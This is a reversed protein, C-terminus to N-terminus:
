RYVLLDRTAGLREYVPLEEEHRIRLAEDLEGRTQLVDALSEQGDAIESLSKLTEAHLILVLGAFAEGKKGADQKLLERVSTAYKEVLVQALDDILGGAQARIRDQDIVSDTSALAVKVALPRLLSKWFEVIRAVLRRREAADLRSRGRPQTGAARGALRTHRRSREV